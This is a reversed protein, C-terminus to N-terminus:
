ETDFRQLEINLRITHHTIKIKEAFNEEGGEFIIDVREKRKSTNVLRNLVGSDTEVFYFNFKDKYPTKFVSLNEKKYVEIVKAKETILFKFDEKLVEVIFNKDLEPIIYRKTFVDGMYEFDLLKVGFETTLVVRHSKTDTKKLILIGGYTNGYAEIKAKYVYDIEPNSFYPNEIVTDTFAVKRLGETTKLSCSSLFIGILFSITLFRNM